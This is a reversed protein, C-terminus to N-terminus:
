NIEESIKPDENSRFTINESHLKNGHYNEKRAHGLYSLVDKGGVNSVYKGIYYTALHSYQELTVPFSFVANPVVMERFIRM